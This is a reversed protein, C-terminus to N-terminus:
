VYRDGNQSATWNKRVSHAADYDEDKLRAEGVDLPDVLYQLFM